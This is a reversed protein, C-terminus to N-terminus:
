EKTRFAVEKLGNARAEPDDLMPIIAWLDMVGIRAKSRNWKMWRKRRGLTAVGFSRDPYGGQQENILRLFVGVDL